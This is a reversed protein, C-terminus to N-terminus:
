RRAHARPLHARRYHRDGRRSLRRSTILIAAFIGVLICLAYTHITIPGLQFQALAPDPSPISLHPNPLLGLAIGMLATSM